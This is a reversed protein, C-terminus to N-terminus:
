RASPPSDSFDLAAHQEPSLIAIAASMEAFLRDEDASRSAGSALARYHALFAALSSYSPSKMAPMSLRRDRRASLNRSRDLLRRRGREDRDCSLSHRFALPRHSAGAM